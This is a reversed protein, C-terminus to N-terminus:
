SDAFRIVLGSEGPVAITVDRIADDDHGEPVPDTAEIEYGIRAAILPVAAHIAGALAALRRDLPRRWRLSEAEAPTGQDPSPFRLTEGLPYAGLGGPVARDLGGLPLALVLAVVRTADSWNAEVALPADRDGEVRLLGIAEGAGRLLAVDLAEQARTAADLGRGRWWGSLEDRAALVRLATALRSEDWACHVVLRYAGGTWDSPRGPEDLDIM